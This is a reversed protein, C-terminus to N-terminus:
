RGKDSIGKNNKVKDKKVILSRRKDARSDNIDNKLDELTKRHQDKQEYSEFSDKIIRNLYTFNRSIEIEKDEYSAAVLAKRLYESNDTLIEYKLPINLKNAAKIFFMITTRTNGERFAHAKWVNSLLFTFNTVREDLSLKEWKTKNLEKLSKTIEEEINDVPSYQFDIGNLAIESKEIDVTRKQGAWEYIDQFIYKHFSKLHEYDYDGKILKGDEDDIIQKMRITTFEKEVKMLMENDKINLRNILTDTSEYVYPDTM